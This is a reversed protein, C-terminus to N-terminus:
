KMYREDHSGRGQVQLVLQPERLKGRVTVTAKYEEPNSATFSLQLVQQNELPRLVGRDPSLQFTSSGGDSEIAASWYCCSSGRTNLHLEQVQTQGVYCTGFDVKSSSVHLSPVSLCAVLPVAQQSNNSYEVVLKQQFQLKTEGSDGRLVSVSPPLEECPRELYALLSLSSHFAVKVQMNDQPRLLLPQSEASSHSHDHSHGTSTRGRGPPQTQPQPQLVTFPPQTSLRFALAMETTNRLRLSRVVVTEQKVSLTEKPDEEILDSAVTQFVLVDEDEDMQVSLIAPRVSAHLELHLPDVKHGQPREVKGPICAAMKSDLSMFGLAFGECRADGSSGSFTLPTFSVHMTISGGAPVVMQQPTICYPYDSPNGEHPRILVTFLKRQPAKLDLSMREEEDEELEEPREGDGSCTRPCSCTEETSATHSQRQGWPPLLSDGSSPPCGVVENGDRDKLPFPEGYAVLLDVLKRDGQTRNFTEWDLRIDYPSTNNLRLSRSITDGGSVHSGFRIIPGQNQNDSQPGSMQFYLPCGRVGMQVPISTPELEGAKCILLDTYDGWMNTYATITVTLTEHPGLTGTNPQVFFAVGKGHSLLCKVFDDHAKEKLKKAQIHTLPRKVYASRHECENINPSPPRGIFYEAEMTFPAPIATHNTMVLQRSVTTGLLVENGFDLRVPQDWKTTGSNPLSYSVSLTRAKGFLGLVVPHAMGEVECPALVETLEEDTHSTFSVTIDLKEHAGLTGSSPTFSALCLSGQKGRLKGWTFHSPLLTQNFLTATGTWPKGVYLEPIRLKCRVLCVQPSQVHAQVLLHCGAGNEVALELVSEFLQCRRARFRVDVRCSALPALVGADPDLEVQNDQDKHNKRMERLSWCAELQTPNYISFASHSEAGLQLLGLDVRPVSVTLHPGKFKVDIPLGVPEPHHHVHCLLNTAVHDPRGGTLVLDLEMCENPEIEGTPPDVEIIHCDSIREWEFRIISKSHNWMMFRRRMTTHIYIHGPVFMAYPELLIQYPETSGKVEVEMVAVDQLRPVPVPLAAGEESIQQPLEPVDKIVLHCVSHYDILEQPNYTIDFQHEQLPGLLGTAPSILFGNDTALHHQIRSLDPAEGPLLAQMNPMMVQWEFALELHANNRIVLTRQLTSCPNTSDFRVFHNATLDCLEGFEPCDEGGSVSVLEVAVAQAEGKITIDKVQCNDCVITFVQSFPGATTPFFVLELVTAQGPMLEFVSPCVAFPPEEAFSAKVVARLSPAPWQKKSMICFTGSSFGENQCLLELFKVAGVLCYGCDLVAPVTLVPPPRRSELPVILSHPSQTEVVLFDQYDALSDPAFRVTYQCSMGPAVMGGKGPFKGLGISFFPTTPPIVRVHRCTATLNRLEVTTEYVQGVKYNTFLVVPPSALFVPVPVEPSEEITVRKGDVVRESKRGSLILSKGGRQALPPLFRPNRLFNQREKLKQRVAREEARSQASPEKLWPPNMRARLHKQSPTGGDTILERSSAQTLTGESAELMDQETKQPPPILTYGDDQPQTCVHKNYSLTPHAFGATAKGQPAKVLAPQEIIYDEPCLLNHSKLLRNDVCRMFASKVPPLGLQNYAEGVEEVIQGRTREEIATAQIRAQIIHSELMNVDKMRKTYEAHVKQLEEVYKDHYSNQDGRRSQSLNDITDKGIVEKTYLDKFISTLLYSIDQSKESAPRHRNMHLESKNKSNESGEAMM